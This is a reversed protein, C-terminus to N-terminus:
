ANAREWLGAPLRRPEAYLRPTRQEDGKGSGTKLLSDAEQNLSCLGDPFGVQARGGM